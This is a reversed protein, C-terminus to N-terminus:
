TNRHRQPFLEVKGKGNKYAGSFGLSRVLQEYNKLFKRGRFSLKVTKKKGDNHYPVALDAILALDLLTSQLWDVSESYGSVWKAKSANLYRELSERRSDAAVMECCSFHMFEIAGERAKGLSELLQVNSISSRGDAPILNQNEGHCAFYLFARENRAIKSVWYAIDDANRFTRHSLNIRDGSNALAKFYPLVQPVERNSWWTGELIYCSITM